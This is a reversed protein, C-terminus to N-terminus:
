LKSIGTYWSIAFAYLLEYLTTLSSKPTSIVIEVVMDMWYSNLGQLKLSLQSFEMQQNLDHSIISLELYAVLHLKDKAINWMSSLCNQQQQMHQIQTLIWTQYCLSLLCNCRMCCCYRMMCWLTSTIFSGVDCHQKDLFGSKLVNYTSGAIQPMEWWHETM